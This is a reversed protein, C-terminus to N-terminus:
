RLRPFHRYIAASLDQTLLLNHLEASTFQKHQNVAQELRIRFHLVHEQGEGSHYEVVQLVAFLQAGVSEPSDITEFYIIRTRGDALQVM